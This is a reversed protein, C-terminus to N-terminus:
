HARSGEIAKKFHREPRPDIPFLTRQELLKQDGLSLSLFLVATLIVKHLRIDFLAQASEPVQMEHSPHGSYIELRFTETVDFSKRNERMKVQIFKTIRLAKEEFYSVLEMKQGVTAPFIPKQEGKLFFYGM